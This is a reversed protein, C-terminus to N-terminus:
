WQMERKQCYAGMGFEGPYGARKRQKSKGTANKPSRINTATRESPSFPLRCSMLYEHWELLSERRVFRINAKQCIDKKKKTKPRPLGSFLRGMSERQSTFYVEAIRFTFSSSFWIPRTARHSSVSLLLFSHFVIALFCSSKPWM